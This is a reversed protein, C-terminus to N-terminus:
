SGEDSLGMPSRCSLSKVCETAGVIEKGKDLFGFNAQAPGIV